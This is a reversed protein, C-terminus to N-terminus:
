KDGLILRAANDPIYRTIYDVIWTQKWEESVLNNEILYILMKARANSETIDSFVDSMNDQVRWVGSRHKECLITLPLLEGLEAVTYASVRDRYYSEKNIGNFYIKWESFLIYDFLSEQKVGLEKLRMSLELSCVQDKLELM